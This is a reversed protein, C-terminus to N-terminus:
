KLRIKDVDVSSDIHYIIGPPDGAKWDKITVEIPPYYSSGPPDEIRNPALEGGVRNIDRKSLRAPATRCKYIAWEVGANALYFAKTHKIQYASSHYHGQALKLIVGVIIIMVMSLIIATILAIGKKSKRKRGINKKM